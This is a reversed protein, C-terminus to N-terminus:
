SVTEFKLPFEFDYSQVPVHKVQEVDQLRDPSVDLILADHLVFLPRIGDDGLRDLVAKFGLLSVDVGTSQAYTNVLLHESGDKLFLPRGFESRLFGERQLSTKLRSKLNELEFFGRIASVFEDIKDEAVRLRSSLASRSVGYLESIVAVKVVDRPVTGSFLRSAIEAYVDEESFIKEAAAAIIRVELARFDLSVIKGSDYSSKLLSRNEKKLTLIQPGETVTLRGTRTGFRDYSITQAFGSRNPRFSEIVGANQAPDKSLNSWVDANIKAPKMSGLLKTGATWVLEYYAVPLKSFISSTQEVLNKFYNEYVKQPLAHRWPIEQSSGSVVCKMAAVHAAPLSVPEIGALNMLTDFCKSSKLDGTMYWSDRPVSSSWRFGDEVVLHKSSGLVSSDICIATVYVFYCADDWFNM